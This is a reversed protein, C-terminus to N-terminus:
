QVAKQLVIMNWSHPSLIIGDSIEKEAPVVKKPNDATNVAKLDDGELATHLVPNFGEYGSLSLDLTCSEDLM